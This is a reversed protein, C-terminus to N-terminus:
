DYDTVDDTWDVDSLGSPEWLVPEEMIVNAHLDNELAFM